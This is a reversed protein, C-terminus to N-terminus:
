VENRLCRRTSNVNSPHSRPRHMRTGDNGVNTIPFGNQQKKHLLSPFVQIGSLLHRPHCFSTKGHRLGVRKGRTDSLPQFPFHLNKYIITTTRARLWGM